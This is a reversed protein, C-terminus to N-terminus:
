KPTLLGSALPWPRDGGAASRGNARRRRPEATRPLDQTNQIADRIGVNLFIM